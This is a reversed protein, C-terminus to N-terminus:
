CVSLIVDSRDVGALDATTSKKIGWIRGRQALGRAVCCLLERM